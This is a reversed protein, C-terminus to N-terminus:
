KFWYYFPVFIRKAEIEKETITIIGFLHLSVMIYYVMVLFLFIGLIFRFFYM